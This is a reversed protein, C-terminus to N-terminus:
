TGGARRCSSRNGRNGPEAPTSTGSGTSAACPLPCTLLLVLARAQLADRLFYPNAARNWVDDRERAEIREEATILLQIVQEESYVKRRKRKSALPRVRGAGSFPDRDLQDHELLWRCCTKLMRYHNAITAPALKRSRLEALYAAVTLSSISRGSLWTQFQRLYAAYTDQSAANCTETRSTLFAEIPDASRDPNPLM